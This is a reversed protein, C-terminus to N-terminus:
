EVSDSEKSAQIEDLRRNVNALASKLYKAEAVLSAKEDEHYPRRDYEDLDGYDQVLRSGRGWGGGPM